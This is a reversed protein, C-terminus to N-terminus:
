EVYNEMAKRLKTQEKEWCLEEKAALLNHQCENYFARDTRMREICISLESVKSSDCTLGIKYKNVLKKIEPFNSCIVPTLSQINEFFKNPLAYYHNSCINQLIVMGVDAAGVYEWLHEHPVADHLLIRDQVNELKIQNEIKKHFEAPGYGLIVGYIKPNAVVASIMQEVGRGTYVGGHYMVIFCDDHKVKFYDEFEKRREAIVSKDLNWYNCVNRIVLPKESLGHIRQTEEAITDNVMINLVCRKMLFAEAHQLWWLTLKGRKQDTNRGMEFEHADYVLKVRRKKSRFRNQLYGIQLALLDHCSLVDMDIKHLERACTLWNSIIHFYKIPKRISPSVELFHLTIIKTNITVPLSPKKPSVVTLEWGLQEATSMEKKDRSSFSFDQFLFKVYKM